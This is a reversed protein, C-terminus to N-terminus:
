KAELWKATCVPVASSIVSNHKERLSECERRLLAKKVPDYYAHHVKDRASVM